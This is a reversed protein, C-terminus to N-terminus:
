KGPHKLLIKEVRIFRGKNTRTRNLPLVRVQAIASAYRTVNWSKGYDKLEKERSLKKWTRKMGWRNKKINGPHRKCGEASTSPAIQWFDVLLNTFYLWTTLTSTLLYVNGETLACFLQLNRRLWLVFMPTSNPFNKFLRVNYIVFMIMFVHSVDFVNRHVCSLSWTCTISKIFIYM